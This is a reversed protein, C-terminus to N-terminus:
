TAPTPCRLEKPPGKHTYITKRGRTLEELEHVMRLRRKWLPRIEKDLNAIRARLVMMQHEREQETPM